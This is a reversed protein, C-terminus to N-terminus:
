KNYEEKNFMSEDEIADILTLQKEIKYVTTQKDSSLTLSVQNGRNLESVQIKGIVEGKYLINLWSKGRSIVLTISNKM